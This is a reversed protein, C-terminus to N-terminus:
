YIVLIQNWGACVSRLRAQGHKKLWRAAAGIEEFRELSVKSAVLEGSPKKEVIFYKRM